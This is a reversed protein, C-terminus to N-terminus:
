EAYKLIRFPPAIPRGARCRVCPLLSSPPVGFRAKFCKTFHSLQKFGVDFSVEKLPKGALVQRYANALQAERLWRSVSVALHRQFYRDLTRVSVQLLRALRRRGYSSEQALVPWSEKFNTGLPLRSLWKRSEISFSKM